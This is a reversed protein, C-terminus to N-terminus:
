ERFNQISFAASALAKALLLELERSTPAHGDAGDKGDQGNTGDRGPEGQPGSDGKISEGPAGDKGDIGDKGAPGSISVLEAVVKRDNPDLIQIRGDRQVIKIVANKGAPGQPGQEGDLGRYALTSNKFERLWHKLEEWDEKFDDFRRQLKSIQEQLNDEM